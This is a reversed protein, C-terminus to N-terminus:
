FYIYGDANNRADNGIEYAEDHHRVRHIEQLFVIYFSSLFVLFPAPRVAAELLHFNPNYQFPLDMKQKIMRQVLLESSVEDQEERDVGVALVMGMVVMLNLKWKLKSRRQHVVEDWYRM